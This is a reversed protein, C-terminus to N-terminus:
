SIPLNMGRNASAEVLLPGFSEKAFSGCPSSPAFTLKRKVVRGSGSRGNPAEAPCEGKCLPHRCLGPGVVGSLSGMCLLLRLSKLGGLALWSRAEQSVLVM